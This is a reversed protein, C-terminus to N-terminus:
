FDRSTKIYRENTANREIMTDLLEDLVERFIPSFSFEFLIEQYIQDVDNATKCPLSFNLRSKRADLSEIVQQTINFRNANKYGPAGLILSVIEDILGSVIDFCEEYTYTAKNDLFSEQKVPLQNVVGKEAYKITHTKVHKEIDAKVGDAISKGNEIYLQLPLNKYLMNNKFDYFELHAEEYKNVILMIYYDQENFELIQKLDQGSPSTPMKVHSHGWCKIENFFDIGKDKITSVMFNSLEEESFEASAGTVTQDLLMADLIVYCNQENYVRSFWSIEYQCQRAYEMIKFYAEPTVFIRPVTEKIQSATINDNTKFMKM